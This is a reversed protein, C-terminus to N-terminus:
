NDTSRRRFVQILLAALMVLVIGIWDFLTPTENLFILALIAIQAMMTSNIITIEVANLHQMARNWLVFTLATNVVSLWLITLIGLPTLVPFPTAMLGAILLLISGISMSIATVTLPPLEQNRNIDRGIIASFSNAVLSVIVVLVGIFASATIDIPFFYFYTGVLAVGVLLLQIKTPREHLFFFALFVVFITTFNLIFSVMIADLLALGIFQTGMTVTYYVLGYVTLRGWWKRSLSTITRRQAPVMLAAGLLILSAVVYRLGAFILPPIELLGFKIIVFSSSWLITVLFAQLVAFWHQGDQKQGTEVGESQPSEPKTM